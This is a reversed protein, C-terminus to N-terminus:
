ESREEPSGEYIHLGNVGEGIQEAIALLAKRVTEEPDKVLSITFSLAGNAGTAYRVRAEIFEEAAREHVPIYLKVRHPFDVEKKVNEKVFSFRTNGNDLNISSGLALKENAQFDLAAKLMVNSGPEYFDGLAEEVFEALERQTMAGRHAEVWREWQLSKKVVFVATHRGWQPSDVGHHDLVAVFRGHEVDLYVTTHETEFRKVYEIFSAASDLQVRQEIMNPAIQYKELSVVQSGAPLAILESLADPSDIRQYGKLALLHELAGKDLM